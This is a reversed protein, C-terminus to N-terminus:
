VNETATLEQYFRKKNDPLYASMSMLDAKKAATISLPADYLRLLTTISSPVM